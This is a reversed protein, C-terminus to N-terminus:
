EFYWIVTYSGWVTSNRYSERLTFRRQDGLARTAKTASVSWIGWTCRVHQDELVRTAKNVLDRLEAM